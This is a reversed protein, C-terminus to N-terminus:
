DPHVPGAHTGAQHGSGEPYSQRCRSQCEPSLEPLDSSSPVGCVLDNEDLMTVLADIGALDYYDKLVRSLEGILDRWVPDSRSCAGDCGLNTLCVSAHYTHVHVKLDAFLCDRYVDGTRETFSVLNGAIRDYEQQFYAHDPDEPSFLALSKRVRCAEYYPASAWGPGSGERNDVYRATNEISQEFVKLLHRLDDAATCDM